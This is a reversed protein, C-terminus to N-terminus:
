RIDGLESEHVWDDLRRSEVYGTVLYENNQGDFRCLRVMVWLGLAKLLVEDGPMYKFTVVASM